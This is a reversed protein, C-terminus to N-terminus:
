LPAGTKTITTNSTIQSTRASDSYSYTIFKNYWVTAEPGEELTAYFRFTTFYIVNGTFYQLAAFIDTGIEKAKNLPINVSLAILGAISAITANITSTSYKEYGASWYPTYRPYTISNLLLRNGEIKEMPKM